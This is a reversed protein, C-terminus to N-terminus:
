RFVAVQYLRCTNPGPEGDAFATPPFIAPLSADTCGARYTHIMGPMFRPIKQGHDNLVLQIQAGLPDDLGRGALWGEPIPGIRRSGAFTGNGSGGVVHGAAYTVQSETSPKQLIDSASCPDAACASPENIVVLWVTYAHGPKLQETKFTFSIGGGTRVLKAEARGGVAGTGSQPHWTIPSQQLEASAAATGESKASGAARPKAEIPGGANSVLLGAVVLVPAWKRASM